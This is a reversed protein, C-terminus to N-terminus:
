ITLELTIRVGHPDVNEISMRVTHDSHLQLRMLVNRLGIASNDDSEIVQKEDLQHQIESQLVFLKNEPISTGNNEIIIMLNGQVMRSTITIIGVGEQDEQGHKFYNEALPQLIMKPVFVNLTEDEMKFFFEIQGDFREKQLELYLKVHHAEDKLTVMIDSNRMSYRMIQALSSLLSYVRPVNHQLAVTGISQLTNYLFHPNIQAQLAKLENTKNALELRYERLILNNITDMMQRFRLFMIGIEDRNKFQIDVDLQGAQIQNMYSTLKKIPKTILFSIYLTGIIIVILAILAIVTNIQTLQQAREYLTDNPIQKIITWEAYSTDIKGTLYIAGKDEFFGQTKSQKIHKVLSKDQLPKGIQNSDSSYIVTDSQDLLILTEEGKNFLQECIRQITDLRVDIALWALQEDSPIRNVSRHFTFTLTDSYSTPSPTFGYYHKKHTPEVAVTKGEYGLTTMYPLERMERRPSASTVLTSQKSEIGHLYVQEIDSVSNKINQLLTYVEAIARYDNPIKRLNRIFNSDIYVALSAHNISDLYNVLNTTGQFILQKNEHISQEKITEKTHIYTISISLILPVITAILMFMILRSRISRFKM